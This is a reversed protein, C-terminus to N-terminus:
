YWALWALTSEPLVLSFQPESLASRVLPAAEKYLSPMAFRLYLAALLVLVAAAIRRKPM